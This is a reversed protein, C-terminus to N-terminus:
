PEGESEKIRFMSVEHIIKAVPGPETRLGTVNSGATFSGIILNYLHHKKELLERLDTQNLGGNDDTSVTDVDAITQRWMVENSHHESQSVLVLVKPLTDNNLHPCLQPPCHIGLISILKWRIPV